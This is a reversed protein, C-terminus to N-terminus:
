IREIKHPYSDAPARSPVALKKRDTTPQAGVTAVTRMTKTNATYEKAGQLKNSKTELHKSTDGIRYTLM